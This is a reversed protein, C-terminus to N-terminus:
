GPKPAVVFGCSRYLSVARVNARTVVLHLRAHGAARLQRMVRILGARALGRRQAYPATMSFALFPDAQSGRTRTLITAAALTEKEFWLTSHDADFAGFEGTLLKRVEGRADELTEGGDDVTGRYADFMLCALAEADHHLIARPMASVVPALPIPLHLNCTMWDRQM